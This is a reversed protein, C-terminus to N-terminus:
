TKTRYVRKGDLVKRFLIWSLGGRIIQTEETYYVAMEVKLVDSILSNVGSTM